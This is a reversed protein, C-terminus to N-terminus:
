TSSSTAPPATTSPSTDPPPEETTTTPAVAQPTAPSAVYVGPPTDPIARRTGPDIGGRAEKNLDRAIPIIPAPQDFNTVAVNAPIVRKTPPKSNDELMKGTSDKVTLVPTPEAREGHNDFVGYASAMDLPSVPEVGLTYSIGEGHPGSLYRNSTIGLKKAME